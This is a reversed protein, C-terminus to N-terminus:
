ILQGARIDETMKSTSVQLYRVDPALGWHAVYIRQFRARLGPKVGTAYGCCQIRHGLTMTLFHLLKDEAGIGGTEM